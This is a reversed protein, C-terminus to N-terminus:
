EYIEDVRRALSRCHSGVIGTISAFPDVKVRLSAEVSRRLFEAVSIGRRKSERKLRAMLVDPFTTQFKM